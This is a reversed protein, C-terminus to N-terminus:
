IFATKLPDGHSLQVVINWVMCAIQPWFCWCHVGATKCYELLGFLGYVWNWQDTLDPEHSSQAVLSACLQQFTSTFKDWIRVVFCYFVKFLWVQLPTNNYIGFYCGVQFNQQLTSVCIFPFQENLLFFSFVMFFPVWERNGTWRGKTNLLVSFMGVQWLPMYLWYCNLWVKEM